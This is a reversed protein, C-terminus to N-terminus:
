CLQQLALLTNMIISKDAHNNIEMRCGNINIIIAPHSNGSISAGRIEDEPFTSGDEIITVPVVQQSSSVVSRSAAPISCAKKRLTTVRNYFTSVPIGHQFCWEKDSLGSTRCEQILDVWEQENRKIQKQVM